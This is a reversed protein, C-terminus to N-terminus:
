FKSSNETMFIKFNPCGTEDAIIGVGIKSIQGNKLVLEEHNCNIIQGYVHYCHQASQIQYIKILNPTTKKIDM